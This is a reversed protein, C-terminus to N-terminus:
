ILDFLLLLFYYGKIKLEESIKICKGVLFANLSETVIYLTLVLKWPYCAPSFVSASDLFLIICNLASKYKKVSRGFCWILWVTM